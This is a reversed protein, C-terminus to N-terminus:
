KDCCVNRTEGWWTTDEWTDKTLWQEGKPIDNGPSGTGECKDSEKPSVCTVDPIKCCHGCHGAAFNCCGNFTREGTLDVWIQGNPIPNFDHGWCWQTGGDGVVIDVACVRVCEWESVPKWGVATYLDWNLNIGGAGGDVTCCRCGWSTYLRSFMFQPGCGPRAVVQQACLEPTAIDGFNHYESGCMVGDRYLEYAEHSVTEGAGDSLRQSDETTQHADLHDLDNAHMAQWLGNAEADKTGRLQSKVSMNALRAYSPEGQVQDAEVSEAIFASVAVILPLPSM